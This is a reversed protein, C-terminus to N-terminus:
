SPGRPVASRARRTWCPQMVAPSCSRRAATLLRLVHKRAHRPHSNALHTTERTAAPHYRCSSAPTACSLSSCAPTVPLKLTITSPLAPTSRDIDSARRGCGPSVSTPPPNRRAGPPLPSFWATAAARAPASTHSQAARPRSASPPRTSAATRRSLSAETRHSYGPGGVSRETTITAPSPSFQMTVEPSQASASSSVAAAANADPAPGPSMTTM